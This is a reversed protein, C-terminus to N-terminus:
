PSPQIIALRASRQAVVTGQQSITVTVVLSTATCSAPVLYGITSTLQGNPPFSMPLAIPDIVPCGAPIGPTPGVFRGAWQASASQPLATCNVASLIAQSSHGPAVAPPQFFLNTIQITQTTTCVKGTVAPVHAAAATSAAAATATTGALAAACALAASATRRFRRV